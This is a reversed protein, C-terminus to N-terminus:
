VEFYKVARNILKKANEFGIRGKDFNDSYEVFEITKIDVSGDFLTDLIFEMSEMSIGNPEDVAVAPMVSPDLSDFDISLLVKKGKVSKIIQELSSKLIDLDEVQSSTRMFINKEKIYEAEEKELSRLGLFFLNEPKLCVRRNGISVLREDGQGLLVRLGMGHPNGSPSSQPTHIDGHADIYIIAINNNDEDAYKEAFAKASGINISHDGGIIIDVKDEKLIANYLDTNFDQAIRFKEINTTKLFDFPANANLSRERVMTWSHKGFDTLERFIFPAEWTMGEQGAKGFCAGIFKVESNM